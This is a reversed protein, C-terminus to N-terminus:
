VNESCWRITSLTSSNQFHSNHPACTPLHELKVSKSLRLKQLLAGLCASLSWDRADNGVMLGWIRKAGWKRRGILAVSWTVVSGFWRMMNLHGAGVRSGEWSCPSDSWSISFSLQQGAPACVASLMSCCFDSLMKMMSVSLTWAHWTLGDPSRWHFVTHSLSLYLCCHTTRDSAIVHVMRQCSVQQM